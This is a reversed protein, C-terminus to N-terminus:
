GSEGLRKTRPQKLTTRPITPLPGFDVPTLARRFAESESQDIGLDAYPDSEKKAQEEARKALADKTEKYQQIGSILAPILPM